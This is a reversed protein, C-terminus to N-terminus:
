KLLDEFEEAIIRDIEGFKNKIFEETKIRQERRKAIRSDRAEKLKQHREPTNIRQNYQEELTITHNDVDRLLGIAALRELVTMEQWDPDALREERTMGKYDKTFDM